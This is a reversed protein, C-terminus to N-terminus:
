GAGLAALPKLSAELKAIVKQMSYPKQLFGAVGLGAIRRVMEIEGFGSSLVISIDPRIAKLLPIAQEGTMVPMTLDLLVAEVDPHDRVLNVAESGDSAEMVVFGERRLVMALLCRVAEEDDAIVVTRGAGGARTEVEVTAKPEAAIAAKAEPLLVRFCTGVGSTSKVEIEGAHGKIIGRVAALGLGRGTFKTTFFPDFIKGLVQPTMGPGDDEVELVVYPGARADADGPSSGTRDGIADSANILFNMVVQQIQSRDGEIPRPREDLMLSVTVNRSISSSLLSLNERITENLDFIEIEFAGKGAFALLQGTLGAAREAAMVIQSACAGEKGTLQEKLLSANGLMGTLLNNFDHAIGGALVGLSELRASQFLQVERRRENEESRKRETIDRSAGAVAQVRGEGDFVPTYIYEFHREDGETDLVTIESRVQEGSTMTQLLHNNLTAVMEEPFGLEALTRGVWQDESKCWLSLVARNAYLFRFDRDFIYAHDPSHSLATDFLRWQKETAAATHRAAEHAHLESRVQTLEIRTRVRALLERAAFPKM